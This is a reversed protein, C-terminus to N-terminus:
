LLTIADLRDALRGTERLAAQFMATERLAQRQGGDSSEEPARAASMPVKAQTRVQVSLILRPQSLPAIQM